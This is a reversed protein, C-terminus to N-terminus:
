PLTGSAALTNLPIPAARAQAAWISHGFETLLRTTADAAIKGRAATRAAEALRFLAEPVCDGPPEVRVVQELEHIRQPISTTSLAIELEINDSLRSRPFVRRLMELNDRYHEDRPNFHAWGGILGDKRQETGYMPRYGYLPDENAELLDALRAAFWHMRSWSIALDTELSASPTSPSTRFMGGASSESDSSQAQAADALLRQASRLRQLARDVNGSRLDFQALRCEAFAGLSTDQQNQALLQWTGLSAPSPFESYCRIWNTRRFELADIRMDLARARIFLAAGAHRSAPFSALFQDCREAVEWQHRTLVSHMSDDLSGALGFLWRQTALADSDQHVGGTLSVQRRATDMAQRLGLSVDVDTFYARDLSILLRYNLEDRGVFNEFLIVPLAFMLTLLPTIAGPRYNVLRAITLVIASVLGAAVIALVWPAVFKIGDVPDYDSGFSERSDTWALVLYIVAPVLAFLASMFHYKSRFPRVSAIICSGLLTLALWPMVAVFGVIAIFPLSCWFRYLIAVLIPISILAAMLLGLVGIQMQVRLVSIPELLLSGLTTGTSEGFRFAGLIQEGYGDMTPAFVVGSRTWYAFVGVGCFLLTNALLLVIAQVRRRAGAHSWVDSERHVPVEIMTNSMNM